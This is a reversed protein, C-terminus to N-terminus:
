NNKRNASQLSKAASAAVQMQTQRSVTGQPAQINFNNVVNVGGTNPMKSLPIVKGGVNPKFYEPERENVRYMM